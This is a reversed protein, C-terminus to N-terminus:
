RFFKYPAERSHEEVQGLPENWMQTGKVVYCNGLGRAKAEAKAKNDFVEVETAYGHDKGLTVVSWAEADEERKLLRKLDKVADVMEDGMKNLPVRERTKTPWVLNTTGVAGLKKDPDWYFNIGPRYTPNIQPHDFRLLFLSHIGGYRNTTIREQPNYKVISGLGM